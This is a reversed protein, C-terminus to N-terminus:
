IGRKSEHKQASYKQRLQINSNNNNEEEDNEIITSESLLKIMAASIKKDKIALAANLPSFRGINPNANREQLLRVSEINGSSVAYSLASIGYCDLLDVMVNPKRLTEKIGITSENVAFHMLVTRGQNDRTNINIGNTRIALLLEDM